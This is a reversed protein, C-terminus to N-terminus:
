HIAYLNRGEFKMWKKPCIGRMTVKCFFIHCLFSETQIAGISLDRRFICLFYLYSQDIELFLSSIFLFGVEFLPIPADSPCQIAFSVAM